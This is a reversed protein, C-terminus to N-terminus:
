KWIIKRKDYYFYPSRKKLTGSKIVRAGNIDRSMSLENNDSMSSQSINQSDEISQKRDNKEKNVEFVNKPLPDDQNTINITQNCKRILEKRVQNIDYYNHFLLFM